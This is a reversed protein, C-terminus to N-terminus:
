PSLRRLTSRVAEAVRGPRRRVDFWTFRRVTWGLVMLENQRERDDQFAQPSSNSEYGDVEIALLVPPYAADVRAVFRGDHWIEHQFDPLPLGRRQLLGGFRSELANADPDGRLLRQELLERVIGTGNRGPRGLADRLRIVASVPFLRSAAGRGLADDVLPPPLVLGLDIVTRVPDTLPIRERRVVDAGPLDGIRHVTAPDFLRPARPPVVSVEVADDRDVLGWLSAASRHSVVGGASLAAALLHQHWSPPSGALRYVQPQVRELRGAALWRKVRSPGLLESGQRWTLLGYQGRATRDVRAECDHSM